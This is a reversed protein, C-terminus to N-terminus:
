LEIEKPLEVNLWYKVDPINWGGKDYTKPYNRTVKGTVIDKGDWYEPPRHAFVVKGNDLLAIVERDIEPLDDGDAPKWINKMMQVKTDAVGKEYAMTVAIGKATAIGNCLDTYDKEFQEAQWKAVRVAIRSLKAFSVEPFQKSLENTYEGLDESVPEEKWNKTTREVNSLNLLDEVYIWKDKKTLYDIIAYTQATDDTLQIEARVYRHFGGIYKGYYIKDDRLVIIEKGALPYKKSAEYWISVPEEQMTDLVSLVENYAEEKCRTEM